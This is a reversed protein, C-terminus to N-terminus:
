VAEGKGMPLQLLLRILGNEVGADVRIRSPISYREVGELFAQFAVRATNYPAARLYPM